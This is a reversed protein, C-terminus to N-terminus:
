QDQPFEEDFDDLDRKNQRAAPDTSPTKLFSGIKPWWESTVKMSAEATQKDSTRPTPKAM